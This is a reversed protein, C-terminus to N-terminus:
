TASPEVAAMARRSWNGETTKRAVVIIAQGAGAHHSPTFIVIHDCTLYGVESAPM